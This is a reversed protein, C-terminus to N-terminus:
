SVLLLRKGSYLGNPLEWGPGLWTCFKNRLEALLQARDLQGSRYLLLRRDMDAHQSAGNCTRKLAQIVDAVPLENPINPAANPSPAGQMSRVYQQLWPSSSSMGLVHAHSSAAASM